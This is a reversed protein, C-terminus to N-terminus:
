YSVNQANFCKLNFNFLYKGNNLDECQKMSKNNEFQFDVFTKKDVLIPWKVQINVVQLM